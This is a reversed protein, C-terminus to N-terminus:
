RRTCSPYLLGFTPCIVGKRPVSDYIDGHNTQKRAPRLNMRSLVRYEIEKCTGSEPDRTDGSDAQPHDGCAHTGPAALQRGKGETAVKNEGGCGVLRTSLLTTRFPLACISCLDLLTLQSTLSHVPCLSPGYMKQARHIESRTKIPSCSLSTFCRRAMMSFAWFFLTLSPNSYKL